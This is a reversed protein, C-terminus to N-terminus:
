KINITQTQQNIQDKAWFFDGCTYETENLQNFIRANRCADYYFLPSLLLFILFLFLFGILIGFFIDKVLDKYYQLM